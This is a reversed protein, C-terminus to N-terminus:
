SRVAYKLGVSGLVNQDVSVLKLKVRDSRGEMLKKGDGLLAPCVAVEVTDVLGAAAFSGFLTGGGFLWIDKGEQQRLAAITGIGEDGLVTVNPYMAPSLTRSLVYNKLGPYGAKPNGKAMTAFTKGGIVVIDFEKAFATFYEMAAKKDPIEIWDAEGNPGAIYGWGPEHCSRLPNKEHHHNYVQAPLQSFCPTGIHFPWLFYGGGGSVAPTVANADSGPIM